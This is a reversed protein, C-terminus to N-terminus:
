CTHVRSVREGAPHSVARSRALAAPMPAERPVKRLRPYRTRPSAKLIERGAIAMMIALAINSLRFGLTSHSSFMDIVAILGFGVAVIRPKARFGLIFSRVLFAIFLVFPFLGGEGLVMLFTNHVGLWVRLAGRSGGELSHFQGLGAGWPLQEAIRRMGLEWMITRGTTTRSSVEGGLINIVDGIRERQEGTLNLMHNEFLYRFAFGAAVFAIAAVIFLALSGRQILILVTILLLCILGAKSFTLLLAALAIAVQAWTVLSSRAPYAAVLVMAYLAVVGADNPNGFLGSARGEPGEYKVYASMYPSFPVVLCAILLLTKLMRLIKELEVDSCGVIWFYFGSVFLLSGSYIIFYNMELAGNALSQAQSAVLFATIFFLFLVYPETILWLRVHRAWLILVLGLAIPSLAAETRFFMFLVSNVNFGTLFLLTCGALDRNRAHSERNPGGVTPHPFPTVRNM